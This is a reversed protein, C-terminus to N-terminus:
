SASRRPAPSASDLSGGTGTAPRSVRCPGGSAGCFRSRFRGATRASCTSWHVWPFSASISSPRASTWRELSHEQALCTFKGVTGEERSTDRPKTQRAGNAADLEMHSGKGKRPVENRLRRHDQVGSKASRTNAHSVHSSPVAYDGGYDGDEDFPDCRNIFIGKRVIAAFITQTGQFGGFTVCVTAFLFLFPFVNRPM